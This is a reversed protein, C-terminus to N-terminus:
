WDLLQLMGCDLNRASQKSQSGAEDPEWRAVAGCPREAAVRLQCNQCCYPLCVVITDTTGIAVSHTSCLLLWVLLHFRLNFFSLQLECYLPTLKSAVAYLPLLLRYPYFQHHSKSFNLQLM